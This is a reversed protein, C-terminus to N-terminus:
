SPNGAAPRVVPADAPQVAASRALGRIIKITTVLQGTHRQAHEAAHFLLGRVTSPLQARGVFRPEDLVASATQALQALAAHVTDQWLALLSERSPL